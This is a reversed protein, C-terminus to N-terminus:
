SPEGLVRVVETAPVANDLVVNAARPAISGVRRIIRETTDERDLSPQYQIPLLPLIANSLAQRTNIGCAALKRTRELNEEIWRVAREESESPAKQSLFVCYVNWAKEGASRFSAAYKRLIAEEREHWNELMSAPDPFECCFGVLSDDEFQIIWQGNLETPRTDFRAEKLLVQMASQIDIM